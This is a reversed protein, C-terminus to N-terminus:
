SLVAEYVLSLEQLHDQPGVIKISDINDKMSKLTTPNQSLNILIDHIRGISNPSAVFGTKGHEVREGPAGLPSVIPVVGAAWAESITIMYTEPWISLHLSIDFNALLSVIKKSDYGGLVSVNKLQLKEIVQLYSKEQVTGLITFHIDREELGQMLRIITDGGKLRNFNGPIAVRLISTPSANEISLPSVPTTHPPKLMEVVSIKERSVHPYVKLFQDKTWPTNAILLSFSDLVREVFKRRKIQTGPPYNHHKELCYDCQSIPENFIDCYTNDIGILNFRSCVLFHDHLTYISPIDANKAVIPLSLPHWLLHQFHILTFKHEALINAFTQEVSEDRLWLPPFTTPFSYSSITNDPHQLLWFRKGDQKIRFLFYVDWNQMDKLYEQYVEVGGGGGLAATNHTVILLKRKIPTKSNEM